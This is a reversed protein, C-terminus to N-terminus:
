KRQLGKIEHRRFKHLGQTMERSAEEIFSKQRDEEWQGFGHPLPLTAMFSGHYLQLCLDGTDRDRVLQSKLVM